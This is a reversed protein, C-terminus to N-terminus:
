VAEKEAHEKVARMGVRMYGNWLVKVIPVLLLKRLPSQANFTYTWKIKTSDGADEFWWQGRAEHTFFRLVNTFGSVRYAFYRSYECATVEEQATNGDALHVTRRSGPQEWPATQGTTSVVAPLRGYGLLIDELKVPVFWNFVAGRPARVTASVTSSVIQPRIGKADGTVKAAQILSQNM